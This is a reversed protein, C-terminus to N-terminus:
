FSRRRFSPASELLKQGDAGLGMSPTSAAWGGLTVKEPSGPGAYDVTSM